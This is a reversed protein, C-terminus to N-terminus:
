KYAKDLRIKMEQQDLTAKSGRSSTVGSSYKNAWISLIIAWARVRRRVYCPHRLDEVEGDIDGLLEIDSRHTM